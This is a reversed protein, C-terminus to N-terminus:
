ASHAEREVSDGLLGSSDVNTKVQKDHKQTPTRASLRLQQWVAAPVLMKANTDKTYPTLNAFHPNSSESVVGMDSIGLM